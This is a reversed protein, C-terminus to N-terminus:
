KRAEILEILSKITQEMSFLGTNVCIDYNTSDKMDKGLYNRCYMERMHDRKEVYKKLEMGENEQLEAARKLRHEADAYLYIDVSDIGAEELVLNASRGVIICPQQALEIIVKKEALFIADHSSTYSSANNLVKNLIIAGRSISEGEAQVEEVSYGSEEATKKVFDNDYFPIGFHESLGRAVSRGGAGYQRSVTIVLKGDM